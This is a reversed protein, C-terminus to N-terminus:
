STSLTAKAGAQQMNLANTEPRDKIGGAQLYICLPPQRSSACLVLRDAQEPQIPYAECLAQHSAYGPFTRTRTTRPRRRFRDYKDAPDFGAEDVALLFTSTRGSAADRRADDIASFTFTTNIAVSNRCSPARRM